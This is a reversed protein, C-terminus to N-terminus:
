VCSAAFFLWRYYTGRRRDDVPPALKAAPFADALYACIAPAETVVVSGHVLTPLKGMPNIALFQESKHERQEFKVHELRYPAGVEELMYHAIQARSMPNYYLVLEDSM